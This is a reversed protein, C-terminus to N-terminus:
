AGFNCSVEALHAKKAEVTPGAQVCLRCGRLKSSGQSNFLLSSSVCLLVSLFVCLLVSLFFFSLLKHNPELILM